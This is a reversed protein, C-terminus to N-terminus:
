AGVRNPNFRLPQTVVQAYLFTWVAVEGATSINRGPQNVLGAKNFVTVIGTSIDRIMMPLLIADTIRDINHITMLERPETTAPIIFLSVTGSEDPSYFIPM